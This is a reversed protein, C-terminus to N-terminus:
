KKIKEYIYVTSKGWSFPLKKTNLLKLSECYLPNSLSIIISGKKLEKKIKEQSKFLIFDDYCTGTIFFITGNSIDQELWNDEIFFVNKLNLEEAIERSYKVFTPILEIGISKIKFYINVFFVVRGNGSGLDYFIDNQKIEIEKLIKYISIWPTEGYTLNKQPLDILNKEIASIKFQDILAYKMLLKYDVQRLLKIKYFLFVELIFLFFNYFINIIYTFLLIIKNM